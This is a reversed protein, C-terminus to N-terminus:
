TAAVRVLVFGAVALVFVSFARRLARAPLRCGVPAAAAAGLLACATFSGALLPDLNVHGLWSALGSFSNLVIIVLATGAATAIPLGLVVTLAPVIFFGGGVGFLGTLFGVLAGVAVARPLCRRLETGGDPAACGTRRVPRDLFMRAGTVALLIGFGALVLRPDLRRNVLAGGYTAAAGTVAFIGAIRWHVHGARIRSVSAVTASCGVVLLSMPVASTTPLGAVFVLVPLALISGGGGLLGLAGGVLLALVLTALLTM